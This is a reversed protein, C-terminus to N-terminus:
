QHVYTDFLLIQDYCRYIFMYVSVWYRFLVSVLIMKAEHHAFNIWAM